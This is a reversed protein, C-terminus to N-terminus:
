LVGHADNFMEANRGKEPFSSVRKWTALTNRTGMTINLGSLVAANAFVGVCYLRVM